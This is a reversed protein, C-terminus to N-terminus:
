EKEKIIMVKYGQMEIRVDDNKSIYGNLIYYDVNEPKCRDMKYLRYLYYQEGLKKSQEVENESMYLPTVASGTIAKVEIYIKKQMLIM